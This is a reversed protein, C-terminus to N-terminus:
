ATKKRRAIGFLGLASAMLPLAAPVPVASPNPPVVVPGSGVNILSADIGQTFDFFNDNPDVDDLQFLISATSLSAFLNALEAGDTMHFWGTDLENNRFGLHNGALLGGSSDTTNTTVASWNGASIGNVLLTNENFDFNGTATDGDYLTFRFSASTLGGGLANLISADFGTQTGITLPNTPTFPSEYAFGVHLSSASLQSVVSAGNTGKLETVIGGIVSAGRAVVNTGTPSFQTLPTAVAFHSAFVMSVAVATKLIAKM